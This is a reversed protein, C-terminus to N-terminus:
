LVKLKVKTEKNDNTNKNEELGFLTSPHNDPIKHKKRWEKEYADIKDYQRHVMMERLGILEVANFNKSLVASVRTADGLDLIFAELDDHLGHKKGQGKYQEEIQKRYVTFWESGPYATAFHPKVMVGLDDWGKMQMRLSDFDETPFGIIQNPIPRIGADLTWFFSRINTKRTSGKGMLKLIRDDFHEYGYVLHACGHDGMTKLINPECLTAHSTGSWHLGDWTGDKKKKPVLDYEKWLKCIESLWTRRSYVDMTMLNEDLFYVYNSNYKEKVFKALKVVYEPSNYRITRTYSRPKDFEVNIIKGNSDKKYKMDGAIGLHYCFRCILSCGISANIDLRRTAMMGAESYMMASNKFYIEELPFLDYAPYPLADLNEILERKPSFYFGGDKLRTILGNIKHFENKKADIMELVEPFTVYSEGIFGFDVEPLWTMVEKPISTLVGGGLTIIVNPLLRRTMKSIKKISAYATTIGGIGILDWDDSLIVEKIQEDNVRWANHDYIQIQHGKKIAIAALQAMGMPIHKPDDEERVLPNILLVKAM